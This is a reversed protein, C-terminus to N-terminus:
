RPTKDYLQLMDRLEIDDTHARVAERLVAVRSMPLALESCWQRIYQEYRDAFWDSSETGLIAEESLVNIRRVPRSRSRSLDLRVHAGRLLVSVAPIEYPGIPRNASETRECADAGITHYALVLEFDHRRHEHALEFLFAHKDWRSVREARLVQSLDCRKALEGLALRRVLAGVEQYRTLGHALCQSGLPGAARLKFNPLRGIAHTVAVMM